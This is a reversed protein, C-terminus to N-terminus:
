PSMPQSDSVSQRQRRIEEELPVLDFPPSLTVYRPDAGPFEDIRVYWHVPVPPRSKAITSALSRVDEATRVYGQVALCGGSGTYVGLEIREFGSRSAITNRIGDGHAKALRMNYAQSGPGEHVYVAVALIAATAATLILASTLPRLPRGM